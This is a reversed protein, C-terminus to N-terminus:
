LQSSYKNPMMNHLLGNFSGRIFYLQRRRIEHNRIISKLSKLVLFLHHFFIRIAKLKGFHKYGLYIKNRGILYASYPHRYTQNKPNIHQHWAKVKKTVAMKFNSKKARIGMDVEDSYMFLVEDQLGVKEYFERKAINMGGAVSEVIKFDCNLKDIPLNFEKESLYLYKSIECGFSEIIESDKKLIIPAIMGLQSDSSIIDSLISIGGRELRIDNGILMIAQVEPVSLAFKIGDNYASTSGGNFSRKIIHSNKFTKEVTKLYNINSGNDVIIHLFIEDKYLQYNEEWEKIKYDDNFTVVIAAVKM